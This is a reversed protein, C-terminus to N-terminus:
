SLSQGEVGGGCNPSWAFASWTSSADISSGLESKPFSVSWDNASRKHVVLPQHRGNNVALSGVPGDPGRSIKMVAKQDDVWSVGFTYCGFKSSPGYGDATRFDVRVPNAYSQSVKQLGGWAKPAGSVASHVTDSARSDAVTNVSSKSCSASLLVAAGAVVAAVAKARSMEIENKGISDCQGM